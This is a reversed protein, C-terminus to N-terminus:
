HDGGIRDRLLATKLYFSGDSVVPEGADLGTVVEVADTSTEGLVVARHEFREPSLRVFVSAQGDIQQVANAPVTTAQRANGTPVTVKAFMNLRLAGDPNPVVCRVKATRTAPDILDSIYTLRGEFVAGPFAEVTVEVDLGPRVTTLDREYVDAMVWVTNIDTITFLERDPEVLEGVAVDYQTVIGDFPARLVSLSRERHLTVDQGLEALDEDTFGFRHLQEEVTAALARQSAVAAEANQFEAERLEFTQQAIAELTILEAAREFYRQRVNLDAESQRLIASASLYDGVLEGLEINDYTVLVQGRRVRDGLTVAVAEIVGRALPRVRAVRSEDPAVVGTLQRTTARLTSSAEVVRLGANTQAVETLEVIGPPLFQHEETSSTEPTGRGGLLTMFAVGAVTGVLGAVLLPTLPLRRNENRPELPETM